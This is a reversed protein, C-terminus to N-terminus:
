CALLAHDWDDQEFCVLKNLVKGLDDAMVRAGPRHELFTRIIVLRHQEDNGLCIKEVNGVNDSINVM